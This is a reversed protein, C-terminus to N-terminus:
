GTNASSSSFPKKSSAGKYLPPPAKRKTTTIINQCTLPMIPTKKSPHYSKSPQIVKLRGHVEKHPCHFLNTSPDSQSPFSPLFSHINNILIEFLNEM